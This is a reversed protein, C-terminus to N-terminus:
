LQIFSVYEIAELDASSNVDRCSSHIKIVLVEDLRYTEIVEKTTEAHGLYIKHRQGNM